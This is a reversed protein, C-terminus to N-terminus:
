FMKRFTYVTPVLSGYLVALKNTLELVAVRNINVTRELRVRSVERLNLM